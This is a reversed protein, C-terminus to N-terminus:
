KDIWSNHSHDFGLWNVYIKNGRKNLVKGVLYINPNKVKSLEQTVDQM